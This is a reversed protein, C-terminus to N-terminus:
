GFLLVLRDALQRAVAVDDLKKFFEGAGVRQWRPSISSFRTRPDHNTDIFFSEYPRIDGALAELESDKGKADKRRQPLCESSNPSGRCVSIDSLFPSM